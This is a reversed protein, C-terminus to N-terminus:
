KILIKLFFVLPVIETSCLYAIIHIKQFNLENNLVIFVLCLRFIMFAAGLSLLVSLYQDAWYGGSIANVVSSLFFLFTLVISVRFYTFLHLNQVRSIRFLSSILAILPLKLLMLGFALLCVILGSSFVGAKSLGFPIGQAGLGTYFLYNMFSGGMLVSYLGVFSLNEISFLSYSTILEFRQRVSFVHQLDLYENFLRNRTTKLIVILALVMISVIIFRDHIHDIARPQTVSDEDIASNRSFAPGSIQTTVQDSRFNESFIALTITNKEYTHALSDINLFVKQGDTRINLTGEIFIYHNRPVDIYLEFTRYKLADVQFYITETPNEEFHPEYQGSEENFVKWSLNMDEIIQFDKQALAEHFYGFLIFLLVEVRLM